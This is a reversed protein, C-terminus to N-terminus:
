GCGPPQEKVPTVTLKKCGYVTSPKGDVKTSVVAPGQLVLGRLTKPESIARAAQYVTLMPQCYEEETKGRDQPGCIGLGYTISSTASEFCDQSPNTHGEGHTWSYPEPLSMAM